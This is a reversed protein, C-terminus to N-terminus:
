LPTFAFRTLDIAPKKREPSEAQDSEGSESDPVMLDESGMVVVGYKRSALPTPPAVSDSESVVIDSETSLWASDEVVPLFAAGDEEKEFTLSSVQVPSAQSKGKAATIPSPIPSPRPKHSKTIVPASKTRSLTSRAPTKLQKPKYSFKERLAKVEDLTHQEFPSPRSRRQDDQISEFSSPPTSRDREQSFLSTDLNAQTDQSIEDISVAVITTEQAVAQTETLVSIRQDKIATFGEPDPLDLLANDLSDDSWLNFDPSAKKGKTARKSPTGVDQSQAFFRSKGSEVRAADKSSVPSSGNSCLRKRKPVRDTHPRTLINDSVSRRSPVPASAPVMASRISTGTSNESFPTAPWSSGSSRRLLQDQGPSHNFSNPDLEALPTRTSKFFAQITKNKKLDPTSLSAQRKSPPYMTGRGVNPIRLSEKTHPHLEGRAVGAAVTAEVFQGIYPIDSPETGPALPHFNVMCNQVPCFVWQHLFTMEAQAFSQLYDAPVKFKGDFQIARIVKDITKHKRILRYATKLGMKEINALYDCGSMIAMRRFEHDSWGVLSVEKCATFDDRRILVCDGYQDLKTLLQKAGFVLLDSDESLIGDIIGKQELYALQSDAEYPAVVYQVNAVKLQEILQGAMEPTVDVAKQLELYAQSTKGLELLQMGLRKSEKRRIAREKETKSKSPLYDGDFVIYPTIGFHKLM